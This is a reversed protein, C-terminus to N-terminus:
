IFTNSSSSIKWGKSNGEDLFIDFIRQYIELITAPCRQGTLDFSNFSYEMFMEQLYMRRWNQRLPLTPDNGLKLNDTQYNPSKYHERAIKICKMLTDHNIQALEDM